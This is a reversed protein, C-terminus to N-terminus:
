YDRWSGGGDGHRSHDSDNNHFHEESAVVSHMHGHAHRGTHPGHHMAVAAEMSRAALAVMSAAVKEAKEEAADDVKAGIGSMAKKIKAKIAALQTSSYESANGAQNIYSWAARIHTENDLPYRKKGDKQYGPDAYTVDGYPEKSSGALSVAALHDYATLEVWEGEARSLGGLAVTVAEALASAAVKKDAKACMKAAQADPVGQKKLRKFLPHDVHGADNDTDGPGGDKGSSDDDGDDDPDSALLVRLEEAASLAAAVLLAAPDAPGEPSSPKGKVSLALIKDLSM